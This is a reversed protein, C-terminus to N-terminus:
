TDVVNGMEIEEDLIDSVQFVRYKFPKQAGFKAYLCFSVASVVCATFLLIFITAVFRWPNHPTDPAFKKRLNECQAVVVGVRDNELDYEIFTNRLAQQGLLITGDDSEDIGLCYTHPIYLHSNLYNESPLILTIDPDYTIALKPFWEDRLKATLVPTASSFCMQGLDEDDFLELEPHTAAMQAVLKTIFDDRMAPPLLVLTTGSDLVTYVNSSSAIIAEGLKWSMTRVALDDAGLIRTYSLPALDRGFDYRGLSLMATDTGSGESCFGFVHANIVGAKALQTHFATNGRSFGAMGDQRDFGGNAEVVGGCGFIMKAPSLEDGVSVVDEIMSGGGRAGDLYELGFLCEGDASVNHAVPMADCFAADAANMSANLLRFDNSLRWDYYQHEHYGCLEADCGVCPFYTLPSGTDVILDFNQAGPLTVTLSFEHGSGYGNGLRAGYSRIEIADARSLRRGATATTTRRRMAIALSRGTAARARAARAVAVAVCALTTTWPARRTARTRTTSATAM